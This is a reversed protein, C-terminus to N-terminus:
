GASPSLGVAAMAARRERGGRRGFEERRRRHVDRGCGAAAAAEAELRGDFGDDCRGRHGRMGAGRVPGRM